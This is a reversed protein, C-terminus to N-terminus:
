SGMNVFFFDECFDALAFRSLVLQIESIEECLPRKNQWPGRWWSKSCTFANYVHLVMNLIFCSSFAHIQQRNQLCALTACRNTRNKHSSLWFFPLNNLEEGIHQSPETKNKLVNTVPFSKNLFVLSDKAFGALDEGQGFFLFSFVQMFHFFFCIPKPQPHHSVRCHDPDLM